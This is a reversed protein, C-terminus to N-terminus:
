KYLRVGKSRSSLGLGDLCAAPEGPVCAAVDNVLVAGLQRCEADILFSRVMTKVPRVPGMEAILRRLIGGDSGFVVLDLRMSELATSSKNEIVFNLRCRTEASEITNLEVLLTEEAALARVPVVAAVVVLARLIARM